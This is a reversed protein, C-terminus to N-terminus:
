EGLGYVTRWDVKSIHAGGNFRRVSSVNSM